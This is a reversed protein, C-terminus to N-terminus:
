KWKREGEENEDGELLLSEVELLKLIYQLGLVDM